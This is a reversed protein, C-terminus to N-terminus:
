PVRPRRIWAETMVLASAALVPWLRRARRTAIAERASLFAVGVIAAPTNAAGVVIAWWGRTRARGTEVAIIGVGVLAATFVEANYDWLRNGLYSAFLLVLVSKPFLGERSHGRLLRAAVLIAIAVVIVNFHLAWWRPSGIVDGLLLLPASALPMVLSFKSDSLTGHHLLAEIDAFRTTGDYGLRHPLVAFFAVLGIAVLGWEVPIVRGVDRMLQLRTARRSIRVDM